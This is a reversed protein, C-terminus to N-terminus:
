ILCLIQSFVNQVTMQGLCIDQKQLINTRLILM